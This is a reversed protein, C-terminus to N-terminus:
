FKHLTYPKAIYYRTYRLVNLLETDLISYRTIYSKNRIKDNRPLLVVSAIGEYQIVVMQLSM